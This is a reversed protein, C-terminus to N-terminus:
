LTSERPNWLNLFFGAGACLGIGFILPVGTGNYMQGIPIVLVMSGITSFAGILASATGAIHGMPEMAMANLNTFVLGSVFFVMISWAVFMSLLMQGEILGAWVIIGTIMSLVFIILMGVSSLLWMGLRVVLIANLAGAFGSLVAIVGFYLPFADGVGLWDVFVQQASSLYAFILSYAFCLIIMSLLARRSKQIEKWGEVLVGWRFPKRRDPVLTEEQRLWFWLSVMGGLVVCSLFISRWGFALMLLQGFLPAVGPVLVFLMMALSVVRAMQRGAYLDRVMAMGVTRPASIGLGQVFRALLLMEISNTSWAWVSSLVFIAIGGLIVPKRGLTDSLPGALLQGVGTGLFFSAIILQVRSVNTTQLDEAIQEFAPLMADTAYAILSFMFAMLVIFEPMSLKKGM